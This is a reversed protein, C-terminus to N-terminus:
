GAGTISLSRVRSESLLALQAKIAAVEMLKDAHRRREEPTHTTRHYYAHNHRAIQILDNRLSHLLRSTDEHIM